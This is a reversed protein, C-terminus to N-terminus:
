RWIYRRRYLERAVGWRLLNSFGEGGDPLEGLSLWQYVLLANNLQEAESLYRNGVIWSAADDAHAQIYDYAKRAFAIRRDLALVGPREWAYMFTETLAAIDTNDTTLFEELSNFKLPKSTSTQWDNEAIFFNLQGDGSDVAYGNDKLYDFVSIKRDFTWQGLGYGGSGYQGTNHLGEYIGPNVNSEVSWNGVIACIVYLSINYTPKGPDTKNPYRWCSEWESPRSAFDNISVQKAFAIGDTHAGMTVRGKYVMETHGTRWLIDAPEWEDNIPVEEFGLAKLQARENHTTFWPNNSYFGGVTLAKSILSSCDCYTNYSLGLTITRRQSQSYGIHPDECAQIIYNYATTINGAMNCREKCPLYSIGLRDRGSGAAPM